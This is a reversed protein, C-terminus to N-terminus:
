TVGWILEIVMESGLSKPPKTLLMEGTQPDLISPFLGKYPQGAKIITDIATHIKRLIEEETM